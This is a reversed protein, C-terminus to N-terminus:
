HSKLMTRMQSIEATQTTIIDTALDKAPGYSGQQQETKAMDIAGEHHEIMMTLFMTDFARGSTGNLKMMQPDDMMGRMDDMTGMGQPVKEGWAKLWGTMTDIEPQQAEQIKTALAKVEASANHTRAMQSMVIAQRHHPIMKQAFTVDAQNHDDVRDAARVAM